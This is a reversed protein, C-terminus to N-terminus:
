GTSAPWTTRPPWCTASRRGACSGPGTGDCVLYTLNSRGGAVLEGSLPGRGLHAALADLDLGPLPEPPERRELPERPETM